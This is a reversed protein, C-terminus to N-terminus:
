APATSRRITSSRARSIPAVSSKGPRPTSRSSPRHRPGTAPPVIVRKTTPEYFGSNLDGEDIKFRDLVKLTSLEFTTVTGDTNAVYGRNFEDAFISGNAGKSKDLTRVPNNGTVDVVAMGDDRRAIFVANARADFDLYDWRPEGASPLTITSELQYM